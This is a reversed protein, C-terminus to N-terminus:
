RKEDGREIVYAWRRSPSKIAAVTDPLLAIEEDAREGWQGLVPRIRIPGLSSMISRGNSEDAVTIAESRRYVSGLWDAGTAARCAVDFELQGSEVRAEVSMSWHSSGAMGVLLAVAGTPRQEISLSQLPPSPPWPNADNGEKSSLLAAVVERESGAQEVTAVVHAYRDGQWYFAVRLGRGQPDLTQIM